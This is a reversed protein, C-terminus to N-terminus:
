KLMQDYETHSGIWFWTVTEGELIGLVRYGGNVRVSYIPEVKDVRKFRLSPHGPNARWLQYAKRARQRVDRPLQAYRKWFGPTARSNM